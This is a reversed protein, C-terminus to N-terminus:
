TTAKLKFSCAYDINIVSQLSNKHEDNFKTIEADMDQINVLIKCVDKHQCNSCYKPTTLIAM